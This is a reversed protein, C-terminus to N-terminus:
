MPLNYIYSHRKREGGDGYQVGDGIAMAEAELDDVRDPEFGARDIGDQLLQFAGPEDRRGPFVRGAGPPVFARGATVEVEGCGARRRQRFSEFAVPVQLRHRQPGPLDSRCASSWRCCAWRTA